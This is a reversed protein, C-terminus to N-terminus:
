QIFIPNEDVALSGDDYVAYIAYYKGLNKESKKLTYSVPQKDWADFRYEDIVVPHTYIGEASDASVLKYTMEGDYNNERYDIYDWTLTIRGDAKKLRVIPAQYVIPGAYEALLDEVKRGTGSEVAAIVDSLDDQPLVEYGKSFRSLVYLGASVEQKKAKHMSKESGELYLLNASEEIDADLSTAIQNSTITQHRSRPFCGILIDKDTLMGDTQASVIIKNVAEEMPLGIYDSLVINGMEEDIFEARMVRGSGNVTFGIGPNIDVTYYGTSQFFLLNFAFFIVLAATVPLATWVMLRKPLYSKGASAPEAYREKVLDKTKRILQESASAKTNRITELEKDLDFM